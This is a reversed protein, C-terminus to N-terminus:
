KKENIELYQAPKAFWDILKRVPMIAIKTLDHMLSIIWPCVFYTLILGILFPEFGVNFLDVFALVIGVPFVLLVAADFIFDLLVRKIFSLISWIGSINKLDLSKEKMQKELSSASKMWINYPTLFVLKLISLLAHIFANSITTLEKPAPKRPKPPRQVPAPTAKPELVAKPEPAPVPAPAPAAVPAVPKAAKKPAAKPTETKVEAKVSEEKVAKVATKSAVKVTKEPAEKVQATKAPAAKVATKKVLVTTESKAAAGKELYTPCEGEFDPKAKTLACTVGTKLSFARHQCSACM